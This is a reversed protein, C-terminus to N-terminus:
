FPDKVYGVCHIKSLKLPYAFALKNSTRIVHSYYNPAIYLLEWAINNVMFYVRPGKLRFKGGVIHYPSSLHFTHTASFMIKLQLM